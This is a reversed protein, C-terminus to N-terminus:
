LTLPGLLTNFKCTKLNERHPKDVQQDETLNQRGTVFLHTNQREPHIYQKCQVSVSEPECLRPLAEVLRKWM